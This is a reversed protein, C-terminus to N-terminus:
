PRPLRSVAIRLARAGATLGIEALEAAAQVVTTVLEAAGVGGTGGTGPDESEGLPPAPETATATEAATEPAPEAAPEAAASVTTTTRKAASVTATTRKAAPKMVAGGPSVPRTERKASRRHPRSHPLAGLVSPEEAENM